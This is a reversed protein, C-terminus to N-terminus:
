HEEYMDEAVRESANAVGAAERWALRRVDVRQAGIVGIAEPGVRERDLLIAAAEDKELLEREARALRVNHHGTM